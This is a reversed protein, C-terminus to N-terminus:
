KRVEERIYGGEEVHIYEKSFGKIFKDLINVVKSKSRNFITITFYDKDTFYYTGSDEYIKRLIDREYYKNDYALINGTFIPTKSACYPCGPDSDDPYLEYYRDCVPCLIINRKTIVLLNVYKGKYGITVTQTGIYYKDLNDIYSTTVYDTHGDLYTALLTVGNDQLSTGRYITISSTNPYYLELSKLWANCFPCGPDSGDNNLNYTHGNTCNRSRPIVTVTIDMEHNYSKGDVTNTYTLTVKKDKVVQNTSFSTNCIVIRTSGDKHTAIATTILAENTYVTQVPNTPTISVIMKDCDLTEDEELGCIPTARLSWNIPYPCVQLTNTSLEIGRGYVNAFNSLDDRFNYGINNIFFDNITHKTESMRAFEVKNLVEPFGPNETTYSVWPIKYGVYSFKLEGNDDLFAKYRIYYTPPKGENTLEAKGVGISYYLPVNCVNNFYAERLREFAYRDDEPENYKHKERLDSFRWTRHWIHCGILLAVRGEEPVQPYSKHYEREEGVPVEDHYGDGDFDEEYDCAYGYSDHHTLSLSSSNCSYCNKTGSLDTWITELRGDILAYWAVCTNYEYGCSRCLVDYHISQKYKRCASGAVHTHKHIFGNNGTHKHGTYCEETHVHDHSAPTNEYDAIISENTEDNMNLGSNDIPDTVHPIESTVPYYHYVNSGTYNKNQEDIIEEPTRFRYEPELSSHIHEMEFDYLVGTAALEELYTDYMGRDLYGKSRVDQILDRTKTEVITQILADQKQSFYIFPFLFLIILALILDLIHEFPHNMSKVGM